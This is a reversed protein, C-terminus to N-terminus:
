GNGDMVAKCEALVKSLVPVCASAGYGGNEVVVIFALPYQEDAVFGAFMANSTQEGGLQSTGSKACVNLGGFNWDGYVSQVNNRMFSKLMNATEASMTRSTKSTKATYAVDEGTRVQAMLYPEAAVGGGAITGMFTMFRAPNVLDTHQGICSWAFSVMATKSIDYNGRATTIGDFKLPETVQFKKVYKVMADKGVLEAIQAFSCNCSYALATKLDLTGHASECTVAETGYEYTGTCRFRKDMIGDVSELAAATTVVKFISGPIYTSQVFRNLYIGEYKGSNDGAIDPVNEPDFTPSTVACLIEGTKYNYVGVTGKRDGLAGLATNQVRSSLTLTAEGGAGEATYIGNFKDFGSLDAAYHAIAGASIFGSRDGLWHLTSKRTKEDSAYKRGGTMDLLLKGSRDSVTGCGINGGSYIHPSGAAVIWKQSQTAYEWVFFLMGGLLVAIFVGMLWTRKTVRNM